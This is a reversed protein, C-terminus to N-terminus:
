FPDNKQATFVYGKIPMTFCVRYLLPEFVSSPIGFLMGFGFMKFNQNLITFNLIAAMKNPNPITKVMGFKLM